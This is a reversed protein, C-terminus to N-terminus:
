LVGKPPLIKVEDIRVHLPRRAIDLVTEAVDEPKLMDAPDFGERGDWIETWVAGPSVTSIRINHHKGEENLIDSFGRVAYKSAGYAGNEQIPIYGSVSAINIIRGGGQTQMRKFAEKTCLFLGTLNTKMIWEWEELTTDVVSKFVGVGANNVLVDVRGYAEDAALFLDRVSSEDTIELRVERVEGPKAAEQASPQPGKRSTVWVAAGERAMYEAMTKGLGRAGGTIIVIKGTMSGQM